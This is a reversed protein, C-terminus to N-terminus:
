RAAATLPPPARAGEWINGGCAFNLCGSACMSAYVCISAYMCADVCVCMCAGVVVGVGVGRVRGDRFRSLCCGSMREFAFIQLFRSGRRSALSPFVRTRVDHELDWREFFSLFFHSFIWQFSGMTSQLPVELPSAKAGPM